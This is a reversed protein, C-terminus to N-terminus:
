EYSRRRFHGGHCSRRTRFRKRGNNCDSVIFGIKNQKFLYTLRIKFGGIEIKRVNCDKKKLHVIKKRMYREFDPYDRIMPGDAAITINPDNIRNILTAIQAAM